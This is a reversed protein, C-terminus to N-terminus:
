IQLDKSTVSIVGDMEKSHISMSMDPQRDAIITHRLRPIGVESPCGVCNPFRLLKM